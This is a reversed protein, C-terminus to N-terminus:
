PSCNLDPPATRAHTAHATAGRGAAATAEEAGGRVRKEKTKKIMHGMTVGSKPM